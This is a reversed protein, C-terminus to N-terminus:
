YQITDGPPDKMCTAAESVKSCVYIYIYIYYLYMHVAIQDNLYVGVCGLVIGTYQKM